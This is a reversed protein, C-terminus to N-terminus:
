VVFCNVGSGGLCFLNRDDFILFLIDRLIIWVIVYLFFFIVYKFLVIKIGVILILNM